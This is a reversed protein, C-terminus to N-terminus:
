GGNHAIGADPGVTELWHLITAVAQFLSEPIPEDIGVKYLERAVPPNGIIPVGAEMAVRRLQAASEDVGKAVVRPLLDEPPRYRVAVAYHTPNVVLMNATEVRKSPPPSSVLARALRRREGKILPDGEENKFERKVEDKSMKMEKIFMARQLKIDVVGVLVFVAAAIMFLRLSIHWLLSPLESLPQYLFGAILPFLGEISKWMVIGIIAAKIVMKVFDLLTRMSFIRKLGSAPNVAAPNPTVPKMSIQLGVQAASVGISALVAVAVCPVTAILMLGALKYTQALINALSHDGDIFGIPIKVISRFTDGLHDTMVILLVITASLTVAETFDRSNSVKGEKRSDRLKKDTPEETKEDSM